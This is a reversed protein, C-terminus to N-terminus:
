DLYVKQEVMDTINLTRGNIIWPVGTYDCLFYVDEMYRNSDIAAAVNDNLMENKTPNLDIHVGVKGEEFSTEKFKEEFAAAVKELWIHGLGGDYVGVNLVTMDGYENGGCATASLLVCAAM